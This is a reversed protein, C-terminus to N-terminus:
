PVAIVAPGSLESARPLLAGQRELEGKMLAVMERLKPRYSSSQDNQEYPDTELDFLEYHGALSTPSPFYHYVLKWRGDRLSTFYDSRHPAHPYHMLFREGRGEDRRGTFLTRLSTGDVIHGQPCQAGVLELVTPFLDYVAGMQTQVTGKAIPTKVAASGGDAGWAAVFPVRMGGEYHSGKKGRLPAASGVSHADGLPADSGNDGLFIIMTNQAVGLRELNSWVDGLSKDVGEVLTAFSQAAAPKGSERYHDAFRPDSNFPAHVGYQAFYLFFPRESRVADEVHRNAELTLAETLFIEKGHYATLGPLSSKEEVAKGSGFSKAGYYSPPQGASTGGVNVEFGLNLPDAGESDRPGFHGKGVHITRYGESKLIRALTVDNRDLGEWRWDTPGLPGTNDKVPNIWNTVRHRASNQGTMISVRTPSCVSMACFQNFRVGRDALRELNPTRYFDNLPERKPSGKADLIFPVSTDMMGLDDVLMVVINPRDAAFGVRQGVSIALAVFALLCTKMMEPNSPSLM